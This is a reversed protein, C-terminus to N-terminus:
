PQAMAGLHNIPGRFVSALTQDWALEQPKTASLTASPCTKKIWTNPTRNSNNWWHEVSM